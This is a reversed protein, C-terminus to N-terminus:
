GERPRPTRMSSRTATCTSPPMSFRVGAGYSSSTGTRAHLMGRVIDRPRRAVLAGHEHPVRLALALMEVAREILQREQGVRGAGGHRVHQDLAAPSGLRSVSRRM